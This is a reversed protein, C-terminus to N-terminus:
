GFALDFFATLKKKKNKIKIIGNSYDHIIEPIVNFLQKLAYKENTVLEYFSAGDIHRIRKNPYCREGKDKDPPTFMIDFREPKKPIITVFYAIYGKYISSKPMVLHELSYYLDALKGGSITNHKNKVEAIIKKKPAELDIVHGRKKDIWGNCEGLINQHFEGVFNQLTKQAQRATESKIWVDYDMEFGSIEFLASFPDIVNKGFNISADKRADQAKTLLQIVATELKQDDIWNLYPM